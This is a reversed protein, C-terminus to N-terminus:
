TCTRPRHLVHQAGRVTTSTVLHRSATRCHKSGTHVNCSQAVPHHQAPSLGDCPTHQAILISRGTCHRCKQPMLAGTACLSPRAGANCCSHRAFAKTITIAPQARPDCIPMRPTTHGEPSKNQSEPARGLPCSLATPVMESM